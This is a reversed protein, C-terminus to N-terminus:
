DVWWEGQRMRERVQNEGWYGLRRIGERYSAERSCLVKLGWSRSAGLVDRQCQGYSETLAWRSVTLQTLM